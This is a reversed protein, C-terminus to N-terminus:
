WNRGRVMMPLRRDPQASSARRIRRAPLGAQDNVLSMRLAQSM